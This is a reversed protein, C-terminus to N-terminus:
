RLGEVQSSIGYSGTSVDYVVKWANKVRRRSSRVGPFTGHKAELIAEIEYEEEDEEGNEAADKDAAKDGNQNDAKEVIKDTALREDEESDEVVEMVANSKPMICRLRIPSQQDRIRQGRLRSFASIAPHPDFWQGHSNVLFFFRCCIYSMSLVLYM